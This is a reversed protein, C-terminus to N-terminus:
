GARRAPVVNAGASGAEDSKRYLGAAADDAVLRDSLGAASEGGGLMLWGGPNMADALRDFARARNEQGFYLLVNRCLVLDFARADERPDLVNHVEYRIQRLLAKEAQWGEPREEFHNIMQLVSLGRQVQFQPYIGKRATEIVQRSVDSAVIEISWGAWKGRQESLLMALSIAEQGTSCGVSWIRLHRKRRAQSAIEPLVTQALVDFMNRDRFFYTENNLLADVAANALDGCDPEILRLALEDVSALGHDRLLGSLATGIRWMRDATLQQGTRAELLGSLVRAASDSVQM